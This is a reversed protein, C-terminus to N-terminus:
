VGKDGRPGPPPAVDAAVRDFLPYRGRWLRWRARPRWRFVTGKGPHVHLAACDRQLDALRGELDLVARRWAAPDARLVANGPAQEVILEDDGGRQLALLGRALLSDGHLRAVPGRAGRPLGGAGSFWLGGLTPRGRAERGRNFALAHCLMQTENLLGRWRRRDEGDPLYRDLHRGIVASLPRTRISPVRDAQLYCRGSPGGLLLLGDAAFHANFAAVLEAMEDDDLPDDDLDFALLRDRDPLLQLPDAHLMAGAPPKGADALYCVAATPLEGRDSGDVGFLSFLGAEHGVPEDLRDARALLTELRPLDPRDAPDLGTMPGLLGPVFLHRIM